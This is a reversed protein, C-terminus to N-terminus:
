QGYLGSFLPLNIIQTYYLLAFYSKDIIFYQPFSWIAQFSIACSAVLMISSNFLM